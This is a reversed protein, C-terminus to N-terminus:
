LLEILIKTDEETMEKEGFFRLVIVEVCGSHYLLLSFCFVGQSVFHVSFENAEENDRM